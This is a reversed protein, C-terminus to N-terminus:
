LLNLEMTVQAARGEDPLARDATRWPNWFAM